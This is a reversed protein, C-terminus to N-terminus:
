TVGMQPVPLRLLFVAGGRGSSSVTVTGGLRAMATKVWWLGFGLLSAVAPRECGEVTCIPEM